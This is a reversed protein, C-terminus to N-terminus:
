RMRTWAQVFLGVTPTEHGPRIIFYTYADHPRASEVPSTGAPNCASAGDCRTFLHCLQLQCSVLALRLRRLATVDM